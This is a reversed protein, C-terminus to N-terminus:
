FMTRQLAIRNFLFSVDQSMVDTCTFSNAKEILTDRVSALIDQAKTYHKQIAAKIAENIIGVKEHLKKAAERM